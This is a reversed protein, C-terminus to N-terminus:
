PDVEQSGTATPMLFGVATTANQLSARESRAANQVRREILAM